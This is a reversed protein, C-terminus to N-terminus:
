RRWRTSTGQTVSGETDAFDASSAPALAFARTFFTAMQGRRVPENPCFEAPDVARGKTVGLEALRKVYPTWWEGPDVDSYRPSIVEGHKDDELVRVLWVAMVWHEIEDDPCFLEEGCETDALIGKEALAEIAPEYFGGGGGAGRPWIGFSGAIWM